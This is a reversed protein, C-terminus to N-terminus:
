FNFFLKQFVPWFSFIFLIFAIVFLGILWCDINFLINLIRNILSQNKRNEVRKSYREEILKAKQKFLELSPDNMLCRIDAVTQEFKDDVKKFEVPWKEIEKKIVYFRLIIWLIIEVSFFIVSVFLKNKDLSIQSQILIPIILGVIAISLTTIDNFFKRIDYISSLYRNLYDRDVWTKEEIFGHLTDEAIKKIEDLDKNEMNM